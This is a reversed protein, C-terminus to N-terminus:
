WIVQGIAIAVGILVIVGLLIWPGSAGRSVRALDAQAVPLADEVAALRQIASEAADLAREAAPLATDPAQRYETPKIAGSRARLDDLRRSLADERARSRAGVRELVEFMTEGAM